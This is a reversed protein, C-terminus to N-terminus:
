STIYDGSMFSSNELPSGLLSQLQMYGEEGYDMGWTKRLNEAPFSVYSVTIIEEWGLGLTLNQNQYLGELVWERLGYARSFTYM